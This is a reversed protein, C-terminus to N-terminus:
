YPVPKMESLPIRQSWITRMLGSLEIIFRLHSIIIFRIDLLLICRSCFRERLRNKSRLINNLYKYDGQIHKQITTYQKLGLLINLGLWNFNVHLFLIICVWFISLKSLSLSKSFKHDTMFYKIKKIHGNESHTEVRTCWMWKLNTQLM